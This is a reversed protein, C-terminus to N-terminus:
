KTIYLIIRKKKNDYYLLDAKNDNNFKEICCESSKEINFNIDPKQSFIKKYRNYLYVSCKNEDSRLFFDCYGDGNFDNSIDNISETVYNSFFVEGNIETAIECKPIKNNWDEGGECFRWIIDVRKSLIFKALDNSSLADVRNFPLCLDIMGDKNWDGLLCVGRYDKNIIIADPKDLDFGKDKKYYYIQLEFFPFLFDPIYNCKIVDPLKDRNLDVFTIESDIANTITQWNEIEIFQFSNEGKKDLRFFHYIRKNEDIGKEKDKLIIETTQIEKNGDNDIDAIRFYYNAHYSDFNFKIPKSFTDFNDRFIGTKNRFSTYFETYIDNQINPAGADIFMGSQTQILFKIKLSEFIVIDSLGDNNLDRVFDNYQFGFFSSDNTMSNLDRIKIIEPNTYESPSNANKDAALKPSLYYLGNGCLFFLVDLKEKGLKGFSYYVKEKPFYGKTFSLKLSLIIKKQESNLSYFYFASNSVCLIDKINESFFNKYYISPTRGEFEAEKSLDLQFKEYKIEDSVANYIFFWFLLFMCLTHFLFRFNFFINKMFSIM